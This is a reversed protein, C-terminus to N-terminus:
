IVKLIGFVKVDPFLFLFGYGVKKELGEKNLVGMM